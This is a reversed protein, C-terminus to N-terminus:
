VYMVKVFMGLKEYTFRNELILLTCNNKIIM